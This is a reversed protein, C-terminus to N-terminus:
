REGMVLGDTMPLGLMLNMCQIAAGSAGKGLNDFRAYAIMRDDNGTVFLEMGDMGSLRVSDVAPEPNEPLVRVLPQGNFFDRYLKGTEALSFPKALMSQQLPLSVLMGSFFDIVIPQFVPPAELGCVHVIEPLHKHAQSVAYPRPARMPAPLDSAEYEAIMKKGGGSYGTLSTLALPVGPKFAGAAMLPKLLAVCGGAHCGPVAVRGSNAIARAQAPSLEAFGYTFRPDTRHATSADIVRGAGDELANVLERSADDPLCLFTIDAKRAMAVRASLSKREDGPLTLLTLEKRGSLRQVIRLGTTGQNGDIFVTAM